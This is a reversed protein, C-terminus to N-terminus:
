LPYSENLSYKIGVEFKETLPDECNNHILTTILEIWDDVNEGTTDWEFSTYDYDWEDICANETVLDIHLEQDNSALFWFTTYSKKIDLSTLLLYGDPVVPLPDIDIEIVMPEQIVVAIPWIHNDGPYTEKNFTFAAELKNMRWEGADEASDYNDLLWEQYAPANDEWVVDWLTLEDMWNNAIKKTEASAASAVLVMTIAALLQKM